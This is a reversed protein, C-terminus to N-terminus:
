YVKISNIKLRAHDERCEPSCYSGSTELQCNLCYGTKREVRKRYKMAEARYLEEYLTADDDITMNAAKASQTM